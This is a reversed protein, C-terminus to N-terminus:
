VHARGIEFAAVRPGQALMGSDLVALVAAREEDGIWPKSIPIHPHSAVVRGEKAMPLM